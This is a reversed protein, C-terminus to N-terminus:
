FRFNLGGQVTNVVTEGFTYAVQFPPLLPNAQVTQRSRGLNYHLYELRVSWRRALALEAGAGGVYGTKKTAQSAQYITTGVPRFNTIAFDETEGFALGGTGYVLLRPILSFGVRPRISGIWRTHESTSVFGAGPFKTNDNQIIPTITRTGSMATWSTEVEAGLLFHGQHYNVGFQVGGLSGSPHSTLTQPLLNVFTAASPLPEFRTDSHGNGHGFHIGIYFGTWNYSAPAMAPPTHLLAASATPAPAPAPMNLAALVVDKKDSAQPVTKRDTKEEVAQQGYAYASGTIMTAFAGLVLWGFFGKFSKDIRM